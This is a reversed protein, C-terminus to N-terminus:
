SLRAGTKGEGRSSAVSGTRHPGADPRCMSRTQAEQQHTWARMELQQFGRARVALELALATRKRTSCVAFASSVEELNFSKGQVSKRASDLRKKSGLWWESVAKPEPEPLDSEATHEEEEEEVVGPKWGKAAKAFKKEIVLGTIGSFAEGALRGCEEDGLWPVVADVAEVRGTFGLAFLAGKRRAEDGLAAILPQIDAEGSLAYLLAPRDWGEAEGGRVVEQCVAWATKDGLILGTEIAINREEVEEGRLAFELQRPDLRNRFFRAAWLAAKRLEPEDSALLADLRVGPDIRRFGLVRLAAAKVLPTGEAVLPLMRAGLDERPVLELARVVEAVREPEDSELVAIVPDTFDGDESALLAYAAPFVLDLDDGALAPLLTKEAVRRGHVVLGDINALMREEPGEAVEELTYDPDDLAREWQRHHFGAEDLHEEVIDWRIPFEWRPGAPVSPQSQAPPPQRNTPDTGM